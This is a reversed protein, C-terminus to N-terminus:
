EAAMALARAGIPMGNRMDSRIAFVPGAKGLPGKEVLVQVTHGRERWFNMVKLSLEEASDQCGIYNPGRWTHRSM